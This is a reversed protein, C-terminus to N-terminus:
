NKLRARKHNPNHVFINRKIRIEHVELTLTMGARQRCDDIMKSLTGSKGMEKLFHELCSVSFVVLLSIGGGNGM